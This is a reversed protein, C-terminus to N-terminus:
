LADMTLCADSSGPSATTGTAAAAPLMVGTVTRLRNRLRTLSDAVPAFILGVDGLGEKRPLLASASCSGGRGTRRPLSCRGALRCRGALLWPFLTWFSPEGPSSRSCRLPPRPRVALARGSARRTGRRGATPGAPCPRCHRGRCWGPAAIRRRSRWPAELGPQERDRAAPVETCGPRADGRHDPKARDASAAEAQAHRQVQKCWVKWGRLGHVRIARSCSRQGQQTAATPFTSIVTVTSLAASRFVACAARRAALPRGLTGQFAGM